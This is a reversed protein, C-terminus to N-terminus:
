FSLPNISITQGCLTRAIRELFGRKNFIKYNGTNEDFYVIKNYDIINIQAM